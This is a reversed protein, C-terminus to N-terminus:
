IPNSADRPIRRGSLREGLIVKLIRWGDPLARLNSEGHVRHAEFSPVEVIKLGNKLANINLLTEIEFGTGESRLANCHSRWFGIYGYCLDSFSGGYLLSVAKTLCWNGAMRFYTMDVTGAGQLFRSGKVFDAGALLAGVFLVIEEPAMSGDADLMVIIDGTAADFGRTLAVGKGKRKETVIRVDPFLRRATEITGDTSRGDVIILEHIWRPLRPILHKLNESENLTPIVVSVKPLPFESASLM